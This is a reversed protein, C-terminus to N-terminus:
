HWSLKSNIVDTRLQTGVLLKPFLRGRTTYLQDERTESTQYPTNSSKYPAISCIAGNTLNAENLKSQGQQPGRLENFCFNQDVNYRRKDSSQGM